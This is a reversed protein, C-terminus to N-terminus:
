SADIEVLGNQRLDAVLVELDARLVDHEADYEALLAAVTAGFTAGGQVLSVFRAGVEDVGYYQENALNLIVTEEGVERTLVHEPLRLRTTDTLPDQLSM